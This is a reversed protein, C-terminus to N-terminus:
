VNVIIMFITILIVVALFLFLRGYADLSAATLNKVIATPASRRSTHERKIKIIRWFSANTLPNKGSFHLPKPKQSLTKCCAPSRHEGRRHIQCKESSTIYQSESPMGSVTPPKNRSGHNKIISPLHHMIISTIEKITLMRQLTKRAIRAYKVYM